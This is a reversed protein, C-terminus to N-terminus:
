CSTWAVFRFGVYSLIVQGKHDGILSCNRIALSVSFTGMDDHRLSGYITRCLDLWKVMRHIKDYLMNQLIQRAKRLCKLCSIPIYLCLLAIANCHRFCRSITTWPFVFSQLPFWKFLNILFIIRNWQIAKTIAFFAFHRYKADCIEPIISTLFIFQIYWFMNVM